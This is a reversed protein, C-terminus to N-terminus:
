VRERCSARGIKSSLGYAMTVLGGALGKRDPFLRMATGLTSVYTLGVGFGFCLGYSVVLMEISAAMSSLMLGAGILLGGATLVGRPGFRDNVWGGSIMAVPNVAAAVSFVFALDASTLAEGTLGSLKVALPASFVSWSYLSGAFLNAIFFVALLLWNNPSQM